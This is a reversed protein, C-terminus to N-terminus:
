RIGDPSITKAGTVPTKWTPAYGCPERSKRTRNRTSPSRTGVPCEGRRISCRRYSGESSDSAGESGFQLGSPGGTDPLPSNNASRGTRWPTVYSHPVGLASRRILVGTGSAVTTGRYGRDDRSNCTRSLQTPSEAGVSREGSFGASAVAPARGCTRAPTTEREMPAHDTVRRRPSGILRLLSAAPAEAQPPAPPQVPTVTSAALLHLSALLEQAEPQSITTPLGDSDASAPVTARRRLDAPSFIRRAPGREDLYAISAEPRSVSLAHLWCPREAVLYAFAARRDRVAADGLDQATTFTALAGAIRDQFTVLWSDPEKELQGLIVPTTERIQEPTERVANGYGLLFYRLYIDSGQNNRVVSLVNLAFERLRDEMDRHAQERKAGASRAAEVAREYARWKSELRDQGAQLATAAGTLRSRGVAPPSHARGHGSLRGRAPSDPAQVYSIRRTGASMLGRGHDRLGRSEGCRTLRRGPM